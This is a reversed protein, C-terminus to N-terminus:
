TGRRAAKACFRRLEAEIRAALERNKEQCALELEAIRAEQSASPELFPLAVFHVQYPYHCFSIRLNQPGNQSWAMGFSPSKPFHWKALLQPHDKLEGRLHTVFERFEESQLFQSPKLLRVDPADFEQWQPDDGLVM